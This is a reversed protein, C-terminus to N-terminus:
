LKDVGSERWYHKMLTKGGANIIKENDGDGDIDIGANPILLKDGTLAIVAPPIGAGIDIDRVEAYAHSLATTGDKLNVLYLKGSGEEPACSDASQSQPIYTTFDVKGAAVLASSLNKEGTITIKWGDEM